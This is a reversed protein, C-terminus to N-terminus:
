ILKNELAEKYDWRQDDNWREQTAESFLLGCNKCMDIQNKNELHMRRIKKYGGCNFIDILPTDNANGMITKALNFDGCCMPVSGDVLVILRDFIHHCPSESIKKNYDPNEASVEQYWPRVGYSIIMDNKEKALKSQWYAKYEEWQHANAEQKVFRIIFRTKYEGRNRKGIISLAYGMVKDFDTGVRLSEHTKKDTGDIGLIISDIGSELLDNQMKDDMLMVNSAIATNQFGKSKAYKIRECIKPDLLPEGVGWLDLLKIHDAYPEMQDIIKKFLDWAMIQKKRPSNPLHVPCMKCRINCGYITEIQMRSPIINKM